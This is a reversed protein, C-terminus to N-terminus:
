NLVNQHRFGEFKRMGYKHGTKDLAAMPRFPEVRVDEGADIREKNEALIKSIISPVRYPPIGANLREVAAAEEEETGTHIAPNYKFLRKGIRQIDRNVIFQEREEPLFKRNMVYFQRGFNEKTLTFLNNRYLDTLISNTRMYRYSSLNEGVKYFSFVVLFRMLNPNLRLLPVSKSFNLLLPNCLYCFLLGSGIGFYRLTNM